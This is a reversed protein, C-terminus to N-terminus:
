QQRKAQNRLYEIAATRNAPIDDEFKHKVIVPPQNGTAQVIELAKNSAMADVDRTEAYLACFASFTKECLTATANLEKMLVQKEKTLTEIEQLCQELSKNPTM